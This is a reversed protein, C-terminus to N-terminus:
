AASKREGEVRALCARLNRKADEVSATVDPGFGEARAVDSALRLEFLAREVLQRFRAAAPTAKARKM